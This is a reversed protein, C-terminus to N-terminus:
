IMTPLELSLINKLSSKEILKISQSYAKNTPHKVKILPIGVFYKFVYDM